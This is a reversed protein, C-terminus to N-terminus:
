SEFLQPKFNVGVMTHMEVSNFSLNFIKCFLEMPIVRLTIEIGNNRIFGVRKEHHVIIM